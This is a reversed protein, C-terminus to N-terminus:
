ARVAEGWSKAAFLDPRESVTRAAAVILQVLQVSYSFRIEARAAEQLVITGGPDYKLLGEQEAEDLLRKIHIRSVHFRRATAAISVPLPRQPPFVEDDEAVLTFVIQNGAHRHMFVRIFAANQDVGRASTLLGAGHLKSFTEFVQPEDLRDLVLRVAPEALSAAELAAGLHSRWVRMLSPTPTYRNPEGQAKVPLLRIYGLYRLYLLLARARGPSVFGSSACIEKLRPLTLGGSVHLYIAWLAAVYRGADKFVGDLAKDAAGAALMNRALTRAAHAFREDAILRAHSEERVAGDTDWRLLDAIDHQSGL